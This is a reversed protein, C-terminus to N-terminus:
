RRPLIAGQRVLEKKIKEIDADKVAADEKAAIAAACGAAQGEAMCVAQVRLASNADRDSSVCRGVAYIHKAGKPIMARYPITPIVNEELFIQKIGYSVHLDIPYFAYCLADDYVKGSLYDKATVTYEGVITVTERVGCETRVEQVELKECGPLTRLFCLVQLLEKRAKRELGSRGQSGDADMVCRIHMPEFDGRMLFSTLKEATILEPMTGKRIEAECLTQIEEYDLAKKDYGVLKAALTVPQLQESKRLAYGLMNCVNADGTADIVKKARVLLAGEKQAILLTAGNEEEIIDALMSHMLVHVGYKECLEDLVVRYIFDNLRIQMHWHREPKYVVSPVKAGGLVEAREIAEWAHGGVIQKGWAHFLGPFNVGGVTMTGGLVGNKEVLLVSAGADAASVAAFVGATGGGIVVVDKQIEEKITCFFKEIKKM